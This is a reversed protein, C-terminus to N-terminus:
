VTFRWVLQEVSWTRGLRLDPAPGASSWWRLQAPGGGSTLWWFASATGRSGLSRGPPSWAGTRRRIKVEGKQRVTGRRVSSRRVQAQGGGSVVSSHSAGEGGRHRVEAQSPGTRRRVHYLVGVVWKCGMQFAIFVLSCWNQSRARTILHRCRM